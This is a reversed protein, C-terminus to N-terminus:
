PVYDRRRLKQWLRRLTPSLLTSIRGLLRGTRFPVRRRDLWRWGAAIIMSPIEVLFVYFVLGIVLLILVAGVIELIRAPNEPIM